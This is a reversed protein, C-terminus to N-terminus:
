CHRRRTRMRSSTSASSLTRAGRSGVRSGRKRQVQVVEVDGAVPGISTGDCSASSRERTANSAAAAARCRAVGACTSCAERAGKGGAGEGRGMRRGAASRGCCIRAVAGRGSPILVTRTVAFPRAARRCSARRTDCPRSSAYTRPLSARSGSSRSVRRAPARGVTLQDRARHNRAGSRPARNVAKSRDVAEEGHTRAIASAHPRKGSPPVPPLAVQVAESAAQPGTVFGQALHSPSRLLTQPWCQPARDIASATSQGRPQLAPTQWPPRKSPSPSSHQMRQVCGLGAPPGRCSDGSCKSVRVSPHCCMHTHPCPPLTLATPVTWIRRLPLVEHCTRGRM